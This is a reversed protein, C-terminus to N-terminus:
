KGSLDKVVEEATKAVMPPLHALHENNMISCGSDSHSWHYTTMFVLFHMAFVYVFLFMRMEKSSLFTKAVVFVTREVPSMEQLKRQREARSFQRFPDVSAEYRQELAELDLDRSATRAYAPGGRNGGKKNGDYSQLYRMKEFLKTNDAKLSESADGQSQLERKFSDREAELAECRARLRDRQAMIISTVSHEDEGAEKTEAAPKPAPPPPANPDLVSQLTAPNEEAINPESRKRQTKPSSTPGSSVARDLDTELSAILKESEEKSKQLSDIHLQLQECHQELSTKSNREKVLDSEVRRMKAVLVSELDKESSTHEPDTEGLEVDDANYELRKLLRLERKMSDVLSQSPAVSLQSELSELNSTLKDKELELADIKVQLSKREDNIAEDKLGLEERLANGTHSLESVEAEYAKRENLLDAMAIGGSPPATKSNSNGELAAMRLRLEDRERSAEHLTERLREGDDVLIRRQAEWVAEREGAGEDAEFLHTQTAVRGAEAAKLQLELTQVRREMAAERELAETARRGETEQLDQKAKELQDNLEEEGAAQLEEIRKELKRITIDQNKLSRFEVEYEAVERRLQILEQKEEKGLGSDVTKTLEKKNNAAATTEMSTMEQNLGEVTQMLQGMQQQQTHIQDVATALLAAPDPVQALSQSLTGFASEAAKGRKTLNDIEEQYSKVTLRCQKALTDIAKVTATVTAAAAATVIAHEDTNAADLSSGAQEVSKVSRKFQKTTEALAKRASLAQEKAEKNQNNVANWQNSKATWDFAAWNQSAARLSSLLLAEQESPASNM